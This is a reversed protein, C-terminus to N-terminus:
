FNEKLFTQLRDFQSYSYGEEKIKNALDKKADIIQNIIELTAKYKKTLQERQGIKEAHEAFKELQFRIQHLIELQIPHDKLKDRTEQIKERIDSVNGGRERRDKLRGKLFTLDTWLTSLEKITARDTALVVRPINKLEGRFDGGESMFYKVKTLQGEQIEQKIRQFKKDLYNGFTVDIALGLHSFKGDKLFEAVVDVGNKYDDYESTKVMFIDEGMWDELEVFNSILAEFLDALKKIERQNKDDQENFKKKLEETYQIDREVTESGYLDIFDGMDIPENTQIMLEHTKEEAESLKFQPGSEFRNGM